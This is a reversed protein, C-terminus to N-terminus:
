KYQSRVKYRLIFYWGVGLLILILPIAGPESEVVIMYVLLLTGIVILLVSLMTQMKLKQSKETKM